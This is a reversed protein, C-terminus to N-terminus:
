RRDARIAEAIQEATLGDLSGSVAGRVPIRRVTGCRECFMTLDGDDSEPVIVGLDHRGYKDVPCPPLPPLDSM